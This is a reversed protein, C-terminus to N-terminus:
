IVTCPHFQQKEHTIQFEVQKQIQEPSTLMLNVINAKIATRDPDSIKNPEDEVKPLSPACNFGRYVGDIGCWVTNIYYKVPCESRALEEQHLEQLHRGCM